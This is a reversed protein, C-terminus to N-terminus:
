IWLRLPLMGFLGLVCCWQLVAALLWRDRRAALSARARWLGFLVAAPLAGTLLALLGTAPTLDGMSQWSRGLLLGAVPLALLVAWAPALPGALTHRPARLMRWTGIVLVAICGGMGALFSLWLATFQLLDVKRYTGFGNSWVPAQQADRLLVDTASVRGPAMFLRQGLPSQVELAGPLPRLALRGGDTSVSITSFLRDLYDFMPVKGPVRRYLGDWADLPEAQPSVAAPAVPPLALAATLLANFGEYDATESDMNITVFFARQQAPFLCLMARFGVTNGGHCLAVAGHRDRRGLGLAYGAALGARAADTGTASGMQRLLRPDIFREGGISGDSILFRALKGMDAATTTFQGAPRLLSPLSPQPVARDVHGMALAPSPAGPAQRIFGFTSHTMGLPALLATDLYREYPQGVVREVVMAALVYGLNSYSFESGPRTRVTVLPRDPGFAQVLPTDARVSNSFLHRFRADELGATHDLLHRLRVPDTARWPHRWGLEPLLPAVPTDLSLRGQTVLRLIGAALVVKTISGVQMRDDPLLPAPHGAARLGAAGTVIGHGPTLLMWSAGVLAQRELMGAMQVPLAPAPTASAPPLGLWAALM